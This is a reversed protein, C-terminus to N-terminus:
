ERLYTKKRSDITKLNKIASYHKEIIFPSLYDGFKSCYQWDIDKHQALFPKNKKDLLHYTRTFQHPGTLNMIGQKPHAFEINQFYLFDREIKKIINKLFLSGKPLSFFGNHIVNGFAIKNKDDSNKVFEINRPESLLIGKNNSNKHLNMVKDLNVESKLDLWIGGSQYIFCIRFIDIKQVPIISRKYIEYILDNKFYEYMYKNVDKNSFISLNIDDKVSYKNWKEFMYKSVWLNNTSTILNTKSDANKYFSTSAVLLKNPYQNFIIRIINRRVWIFFNLIFYM